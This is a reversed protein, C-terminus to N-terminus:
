WSSIAASTIFGANLAEQKPSVPLNYWLDAVKSTHLDNILEKLGRQHKTALIPTMRNTLPSGEGESLTVFQM